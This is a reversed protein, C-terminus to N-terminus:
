LMPLLRDKLECTLFDSGTTGFAQLRPNFVIKKQTKYLRSGGAWAGMRM